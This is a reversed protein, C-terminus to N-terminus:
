RMRIRTPEIEIMQNYERDTAIDWDYKRQFEAVVASSASGAPAIRAVGEFVVPRSGDELAMSVQPNQLLNRTKVSGAETCVYIRQACWVFWIPVLHPAGNPRVTALWINNETQLRQEIQPDFLPIAM